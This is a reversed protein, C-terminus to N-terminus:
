HNYSSNVGQTSGAGTMFRILQNQGNANSANGQQSSANSPLQQSNSWAGWANLSTKQMGSSSSSQQSYSINTNPYQPNNSNAIPYNSSPQAVNNMIQYSGGLVSWQGQQVAAHLAANANQQAYGNNNNYGGFVQGDNYSAGDMNSSAVNSQHQQSQPPAPHQQQSNGSNVIPYSGSGDM